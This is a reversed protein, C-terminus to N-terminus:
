QEVLETQEMLEKLTISTDNCHQIFEILEQLDEKRFAFRSAIFYEYPHCSEDLMVESLQLGLLKQPLLYRAFLVTYEEGKKIWNSQPIESPKNSDDVCLCKLM